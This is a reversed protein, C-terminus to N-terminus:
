QGMMTIHTSSPCYQFKYLRPRPPQPGPNPTHQTAVQKRLTRLFLDMVNPHIPCGLNAINSFKQATAM